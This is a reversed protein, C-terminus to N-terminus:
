AVELVMGAISIGAGTGILLVKSGPM